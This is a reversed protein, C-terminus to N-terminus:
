ASMRKSFAYSTIVVPLPGSFASTVSLGIASGGTCCPSVDMTSMVGMKLASANSGSVTRVIACANSSRGDRVRVVARFGFSGHGLENDLEHPAPDAIRNLKASFGLSFQADAM